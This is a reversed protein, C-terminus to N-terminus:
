DQRNGGEAKGHDSEDKTIRSMMAKAEDFDPRLDLAKRLSKLALSRKGIELYARALNYHIVEDGPSLRIAKNYFQIAEELNGERRLAIGIRNYLHAPVRGTQLSAKFASIAQYTYDKEYYAEAIDIKREMNAPDLEAALQFRQEAEEILGIELYAKGLQMQRDPNEPSIRSARELAVIADDHLHLREYFDGLTQHAKVYKPNKETAEIYQRRAETDFGIKEYIQGIRTRIRASHPFLALAAKFELLAESYLQGTVFIEGRRIHDEAPGPNERRNLIATIKEELTKLIFPKIICGDVETEAARAVITPSVAGVLLLFPISRFMPEKRVRELLEIATNSPPTWDAVIFGVIGERNLLRWATQDDPADLVRKCGISWLMSRIARRMGPVPDVILFVIREM